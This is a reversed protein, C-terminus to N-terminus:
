IGAFNWETILIDQHMDDNANTHESEEESAKRAESGQNEQDECRESNNTCPHEVEDGSNPGDLNL